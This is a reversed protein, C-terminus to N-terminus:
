ARSSVEDHRRRWFVSQPWRRELQYYRLRMANNRAHLEKIKRVYNAINERLNLGGKVLLNAVAVASKIAETIGASSLPDITAASDGLAIWGQGAAEVLRSTDAVVVRVPAVLSYDFNQAFQRILRTGSALRLWTGSDKAGCHKLLDGDTFYIVVRKGRPVRATYWWGDAASEITTALDRDDASSTKLIGAVAVLKDLTIRSVGCARAFSARRGTADLVWECRRDLPTQSSVFKLTWKTGERSKAVLRSGPLFEVGAKVAHDILFTDFATRDLHLGSGYPSMLGHRTQIENSAWLSCNGSSPLTPIVHCVEQLGAQRITTIANGPLTEGIKGDFNTREDVLAVRRGAKALLGAVVAGAPGAGLVVISASEDAELYKV